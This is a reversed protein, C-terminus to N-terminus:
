LHCRGRGRCAIIKHFPSKESKGIKESIAGEGLFKKSPASAGHEFGDSGQLFGGIL